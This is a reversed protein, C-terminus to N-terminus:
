ECQFYFVLSEQQKAVIKGASTKAEEKTKGSAIIVDGLVAFWCDRIDYQRLSKKFFRANKRAIEHYFLTKLQDDKEILQNIDDQHFEIDKLYYKLLNQRSESEALKKVPLSEIIGYTAKAKDFSDQFSRRYGSGFSISFPAIIGDYIIQNKFPLLIAEVYAPTQSVVHSIPDTLGLVGYAKSPENTELFITYKKYHKLIFFSGKIFNKWGKIIAIEEADFNFPNNTVFDDIMGPVEYVQDRIKKKLTINATMLAAINQLEPAIKLRENAFLMLSPHLKFYLKADHENLIM